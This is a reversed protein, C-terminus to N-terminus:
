LQVLLARLVRLVCLALIVALMTVVVACIPATTFLPLIFSALVPSLLPMASVLIM